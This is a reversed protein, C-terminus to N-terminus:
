AEGSVATAMSDRADIVARDCGLLGQDGWGPTGTTHGIGTDNAVETPLGAVRKQPCRDSIGVLVFGCAGRVSFQAM